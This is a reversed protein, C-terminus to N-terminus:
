SDQTVFGDQLMLQYIHQTMAYGQSQVILTASDGLYFTNDKSFNSHVM